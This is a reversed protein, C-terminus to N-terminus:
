KRGIMFVFLVSIIVIVIAILWYQLQAPEKLKVLTSKTEASALASSESKGNSTFLNKHILTEKQIRIPIAKPNLIASVTLRQTQPNLILRVDVLDHKIATIGNVLSDMQFYSEQSIEQGAVTIVTDAHERIRIVSQDIVVATSDLRREKREQSTNVEKDISVKRFMGCGSLALVLFCLVSTFLQKM